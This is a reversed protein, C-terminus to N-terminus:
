DRESALLLELYRRFPDELVVTKAACAQDTGAEFPHAIESGLPQDLRDENVCGVAQAPSVRM